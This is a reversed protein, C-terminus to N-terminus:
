VHEGGKVAKCDQYMGIYRLLKALIVFIGAVPLCGYILGMSLRLVATLQDTNHIVLQIGGYIYVYAVFALVIIEDIINVITLAKGKLRTTLLTLKVHSDKFFAYGAGIMGAWVLVYRLLEDTFTSPNNLIWRSFIQWFGFVILVLMVFSMLTRMALDLWKELNKM